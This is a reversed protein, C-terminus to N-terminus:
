LEAHRNHTHARPFRKVNSPTFASACARRTTSVARSAAQGRTSRAPREPKIMRLWTSRAPWGHGCRAALARRRRTRASRELWQAPDVQRLFRRHHVRQILPLQRGRDRRAQRHSGDTAIEPLVHAVRRANEKPRPALLTQKQKMCALMGGSSMAQFALDRLEPTAGLTSVSRLSRLASFPHSSGVSRSRANRGTRERAAADSDVPQSPM